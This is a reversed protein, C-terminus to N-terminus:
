IQYRRFIDIGLILIVDARAGVRGPHISIHFCPGIARGPPPGLADSAIGGFGDCVTQDIGMDSRPENPVTRGFEPIV